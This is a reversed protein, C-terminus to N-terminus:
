PCNVPKVDYTIATTVGTGTLIVHYTQGAVPSWGDRQLYLGSSFGYSGALVHATVALAAGDSVRTVTAVVNQQPVNGQITWPWQAVQLPVFGPPPYAVVAPRPGTGGSSFVRICSASGYNNGGRYYGIGVPNLPPNLLWRRHGFHTENGNDVLWQDIADDAGGCGWAINSSGAGAAGTATYCTASPPPSHAGQGAPNWASILACEQAARDDGSDDTVPGLGALWRHMNLRGLADDIAARSLVGPDCTASTKTFGDGSATTAHGSTWAACVEAESRSAPDGPNVPVCTPGSSTFGPNCECHVAPSAVCHGNAPCTFGACPDTPGADPSGADPSGADTSGADSSGADHPGADSGAGSDLLSADGVELAQDVSVLEALGTCGVSGLCVVSSLVIARNM